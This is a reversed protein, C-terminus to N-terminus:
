AKLLEVVKAALPAASPPNQGTLLNGAVQVNPQFVGGDVFKGGAAQMADECSGPGTPKSVVEYKQVAHEEANTFGTCPKDKLISVGDIQTCFRPRVRTPALVPARQTCAHPARTHAARGAALVAPWRLVPVKVNIFCIPGHCVAAVPKGAAYTSKVARILADNEPFDWMVGFGGAIFLADYSNVDCDALKPASVTRAKLVEDNIFNLSQQDAGDISSPDCTSVGGISAFDVEFGAELFVYYPHAAEPLYWGTPSLDPYKDVSTLVILVKKPMNADDDTQSPVNTTKLTYLHLFTSNEKRM